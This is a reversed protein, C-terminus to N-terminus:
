PRWRPPDIVQTLSSPCTTRESDFHYFCVRSDNPPNVQRFMLWVGDPSWALSAARGLVGTLQRRDGTELDLLYIYSISSGVQGASSSFLPEAVFAIQTGDSSWQPVDVGILDEWVLRLPEAGPEADIIHLTDIVSSAFRDRPGVYALQTSDPSWAPSRTTNSTELFVEGYPLRAVRITRNDYSYAIQSGDPSVTIQDNTPNDDTLNRFVGTPLHLTFLDYTGTGAVREFRYVLTEGDTMWQPDRNTANSDTVQVAGRGLANMVELQMDGRNPRMYVIQSGDPSWAAEEARGPGPTLNATRGNVDALIINSEADQWRTYLLTPALTFRTGALMVLAVAVLGSGVGLLALRMTVRLMMPARAAM